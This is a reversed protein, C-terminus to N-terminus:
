SKRKKRGKKKDKKRKKGPKAPSEELRAELRECVRRLVEVRAHRKDNAAVLYWPAYSTNTKGVMEDVAQAYQPWKERNRFDEDTLKYKKYPTKARSEFRRLQEDADTHLWFKLVPTGHEHLQAEFENIEEYARRWEHEKAFGEVREVLVRGYWSRDFIVSNGDRPLHRWFRWLYHRAKEEDTPAAIPVVRVNQAPMASTLRRIAGGKGAADWGEFAMVCSIGRDVASRSLEHLRAQLSELERDYTKPALSASLDVRDLITESDIPDPTSVVPASGPGRPGSEIRGQVASAIQQAVVLNRYRRDTSEVIKWPAGPTNSRRVLREVLQMGEDYDDLIEWNSEEIRWHPKAQKKSRALRKKLEAKPLHLWFKLVLTGDEALLREFREVHDIGGDLELSNVKRELAAYILQAPWAGLFLGTRGAAPLRRWYRWFVPRELEEESWQGYLVHTDIYRADLWEHLAHLLDICGPRDDGAVLIVTSFDASRCDYQLNLLEVRLEDLRKEYDDKDIAHGLEAEAFLGSTQPSAM